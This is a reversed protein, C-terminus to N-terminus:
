DDAELGRWTPREVVRVNIYVLKKEKALIQRILEDKKDIDEASGVFVQINDGLMLATKDETSASVSQVQARLEPSLGSIVSLANKLEKSQTVKGAVPDAGPAERITPVATTDEASRHGLWHGDASLFWLETGGADVLAAPTREVIEIRVTGPLHRSLSADAIWPNARLRDLVQSKPLKPLTSGAPIAASALVSASTLRSAGTVQVDKVPLIPARWLSVLGWLTAVVALAVGIVLATQRRTVSRNRREREDRKEAAM